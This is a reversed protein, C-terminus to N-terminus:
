SEIRTISNGSISLKEVVRGGALVTAEQHCGFDEVKVSVESLGRGNTYYDTLYGKISDIRRASQAPDVPGGCGGSSADCGSVGATQGCGSGNGCGSYGEQPATQPAVETAVAAVAVSSGDPQGVAFLAVAAALAVMIGGTIYWRRM